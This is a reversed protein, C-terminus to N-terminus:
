RAPGILGAVIQASLAVLPLGGGPHSSGGVLFLGPVPSRNSARLFAARRGNSSTGYIAGGVARTGRELDAPTRLERWLIRDRVEVGRESLLDIIRGAYGEALGPHDWDLGQQGQRPANVLVFWSEHGRPAASPDDPVSVYITPDRVPCPHPGFLDDFEADYDRAFLVRHHPPPSAASRVALLVVFGSLSRAASALRRRARLGSGDPLLDQYLHEADTNAVVLDATIERGDLLRVARVRGAGDLEVSGVDAGLQVDVGLDLARDHLASAITHLGGEVYWAGFAQEVWPIVSLAAPARRPDSGSYTAYRDIFMVLRPDRFSRQALQRLTLHPAVARVDSLRTHRDVLDRLRELPSELFPRRSVKWASAARALFRIWEASSGPSLRELNACMTPLDASADLTSGDSWRYRALPEVRRLSLVTDMPAGTDAFLESFVHPMTLLSPGTDFRFGDREFTGLKGGVRDAQECVTVRHGLRALRAAAALGGVGAGIVVVEAM